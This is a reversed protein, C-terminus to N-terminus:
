SSLKKVKLLKVMMNGIFIYKLFHPIQIKYQIKLCIFAAKTLM